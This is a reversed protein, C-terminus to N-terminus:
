TELQPVVLRRQSDASWMYDYEFRYANVTLGDSYVDVRAVFLNGITASNKWDKKTLFFTGYGDIRLWDPHKECFVEIQHQTFCLKDLDVGFSGFMQAFTGDRVLEHVVVATEKTPNWRRNLGLKKFDPDIYSKFVEKAEALTHSDDCAPIIIPTDGSLRKPYINTEIIKNENKNIAVYMVKAHKNGESNVIRQVLDANFGAKDLVLAFEHMEGCSMGCVSKTSM